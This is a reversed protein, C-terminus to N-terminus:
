VQTEATRRVVTAAAAPKAPTVESRRRYRKGFLTAIVIVVIVVSAVITVVVAVVTDHQLHQAARRGDSKFLRSKFLKVGSPDSGTSYLDAPNIYSISHHLSLDGTFAWRGTLLCRRDTLCM